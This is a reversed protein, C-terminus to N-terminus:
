GCVIKQVSRGKLDEVGVSSGEFGKSGCIVEAM